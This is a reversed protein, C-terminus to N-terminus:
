IRLETCETEFLTIAWLDHHAVKYRLIGSDIWIYNTTMSILVLQFGLWGWKLFHASKNKYQVDIHDLDCLSISKLVLHLVLHFIELSKKWNRGRSEYSTLAILAPSQSISHSMKKRRKKMNDSDYTIWVNREFMIQSHLRNSFIIWTNYRNEELPQSLIRM